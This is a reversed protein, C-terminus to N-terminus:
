PVHSRDVTLWGRSDPQKWIRTEVLPVRRCKGTEREIREREHLIASMKPVFEPDIAADIKNVFFHEIREFLPMDCTGLICPHGGTKIYKTCCHGWSAYKYNNHWLTANYPSSALATAYFFEDPSQTSHSWALLELMKPDNYLHEVFNRHYMGYRYAYVIKTDHPVNRKTESLKISESGVEGWTEYM